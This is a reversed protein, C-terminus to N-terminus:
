SLGYGEPANKWQLGNKAVYVIEASCATAYLPKTFISALQKKLMRAAPRSQARLRDPSLRLSSRGTTGGLHLNCDRTLQDANAPSRVFKRAKSQAM